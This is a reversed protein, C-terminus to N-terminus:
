RYLAHFPKYSQYYNGGRPHGFFTYDGQQTEYELAYARCEQAKNELIQYLNVDAVVRQSFLAAAKNIIYDVIPQPLEEWDFLWLVDCYVPCYDWKYTHAIKDYLKPKGDSPDVRRIPDRGLNSFVENCLDVQLIKPALIIEGDVNPQFPYHFERNFTWGEAQVERSVQNLTETAMAVDPNTPNDDQDLDISTVPMQGVAALMQNIAQLETM